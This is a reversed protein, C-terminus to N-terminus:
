SEVYSSKQTSSKEQISKSNVMIFIIVFLYAGLQRSLVNEVMFFMTLAMLLSIKFFNHKNQYALVILLSLLLFLGLFGLIMFIGLFQNHTNFKSQTFFLKRSENAIKLRYCDVLKYVLEKESNVGILLNFEPTNMIEFACPWIIFRPEHRELKQLTETYNDTIFFRERLNKNFNLFLASILFVFFVVMSKKYFSVQLYFLMYIFVVAVLTLISMRASILFLVIVTYGVYALLVYQHKKFHMSLYYATFISMILMFGLYPREMGLIANIVKGEFPLLEGTQTYNQLVAVVARTGIIFGVGVVSTLVIYIDKIKLAVVAILVIPILLSYKNDTFTNTLVGKGVWYLLLVGLILYPLTTLTKFNLEKYRKYDIIFYLCLTILAINHFKLAFPLAIILICFLYDYIHQKLHELNM